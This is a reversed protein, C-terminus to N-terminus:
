DQINIKICFKEKWGKYANKVFGDPKRLRLKRSEMYKEASVGVAVFLSLLLLILGFVNGVETTVWTGAIISFIIGFVLNSLGFGVIAIFIGIIASFFLGKMFKHTYTCLDHDSWGNFGGFKAITYHWSNKDFQLTKM